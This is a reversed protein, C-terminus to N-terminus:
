FILVPFILFREPKKTGLFLGWFYNGVKESQRISKQKQLFLNRRRKTKSEDKQM